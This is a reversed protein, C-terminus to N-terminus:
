MREEMPKNMSEDFTGVSSHLFVCYELGEPLNKEIVTANEEFEKGWRAFLCSDNFIGKKESSEKMTFVVDPEDKVHVTASIGKPGSSYFLGGEDYHEIVFEEDYKAELDELLMEEINYCGTFNVFFLGIFIIILFRQKNIM